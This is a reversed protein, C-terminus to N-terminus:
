VLLFQHYKKDDYDYLQINSQNIKGKYHKHTAYDYGTFTKGELQFTIYEKPGCHFLNNDGGTIHSKMHHDYISVSPNINGSFYFYKSESYDYLSRGPRNTILCALVYAIGRRVGPM